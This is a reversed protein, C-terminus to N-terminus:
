LWWGFMYGYLGHRYVGDVCKATCLMGTVVCNAIVVM